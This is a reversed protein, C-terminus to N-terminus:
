LPIKELSEALNNVPLVPTAPIIARKKAVMTLGMTFDRSAFLKGGCVGVLFLMTSGAYMWLKSFGSAGPKAVFLETAIQCLAEAANGHDAQYIIELDASELLSKLGFETYRFYDHPVEHLPWACPVSIVVTGGPKLVRAIESIKNCPDNVHELVQTCIVTDFSSNDLPLRASDSFIDARTLSGYSGKQTVPHDIGIYVSASKSFLTEYPKMGCGVDLFRGSRLYPLADNLTQLVYHRAFFIPSYPLPALFDRLVEPHRKRMRAYFWITKFIDKM